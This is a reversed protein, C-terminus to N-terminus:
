RLPLSIPPFFYIFLSGPRRQGFNLPDLLSSGKLDRWLIRGCQKTLVCFWLRSSTVGGQKVVRCHGAAMKLLNQLSIVSSLHM